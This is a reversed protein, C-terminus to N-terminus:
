IRNYVPTTLNVGMASRLSMASRINIGNQEALVYGSLSLPIPSILCQPQRSGLTLLWDDHLAPWSWCRRAWLCHHCPSGGEPLLHGISWGARHGRPISCLPLSISLGSIHTLPPLAQSVGRYFSLSM